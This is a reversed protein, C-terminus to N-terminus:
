SAVGIARLARRFMALNQKEPQAPGDGGVLCRALDTIDSLAQSRPAELRLLRGNNVATTVAPDNVITRVPSVNLVRELDRSTFGLLKPDYRNMVLCQSLGNTVRDLTDRILSLARMSPVKQEGILVVQSAFSLTHFYLEDYTCPVDLVIVKTLQKAYDIIQRIDEASATGSSIAKPGAVIDFDEAVNTLVGRVLHIDLREMNKLLDRTTHRPEVNLYTAVMGMKLSLDVLICPLKYTCATEYALNIAITTAGCGGAVGSVALVTAGSASSGFQLAICELAAGFDEPQLPLPVIQTAGARMAGLMATPNTGGDLLALIPQGVFRGSLQSVLDPSQSAGLYVIFLRNTDEAHRLGEAARRVDPFDAEVTAGRNLLERKVSTGISETCGVLVVNLHRM